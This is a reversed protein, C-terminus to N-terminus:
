YTPVKQSNISRYKSCYLVILFELFEIERRESLKIELKIDKGCSKLKSYEEPAAMEEEVL